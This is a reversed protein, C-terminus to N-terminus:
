VTYDPHRYLIDESDCTAVHVEGRRGDKPEKATLFVGDSVRLWVEFPHDSEDAREKARAVALHYERRNM